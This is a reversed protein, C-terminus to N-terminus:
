KSTTYSLTTESDVRRGVKCLAEQILTLGLGSSGSDLGVAMSCARLFFETGQVIVEKDEGQQGGVGRGVVVLRSETEISKGTRFM